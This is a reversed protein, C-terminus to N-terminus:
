AQYPATPLSGLTASEHLLADYPKYFTCLPVRLM